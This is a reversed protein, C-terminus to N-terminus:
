AIRCGIILGINKIVYKWARNQNRIVDIGIEALFSPQRSYAYGATKKKVPGRWVEGCHWTTCFQTSRALLIHITSKRSGVKQSKLHKPFHCRIKVSKLGLLPIEFNWIDHDMLLTGQNPQFVSIGSSMKRVPIALRGFVM